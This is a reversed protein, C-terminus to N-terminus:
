ARAEREAVGQGEAEIADMEVFVKELREPEIRGQHLRVCRQALRLGARRHSVILVTRGEVLRALAEQLRLETGMDLSSTAEDLLVVPADKLLARAIAVRQREGASLPLGGESLRTRVGDPLDQVLDGLQASRLAALVEADSAGVRACRVNEELTGAFLITEQAVVALQRRLDELRLERVDVGDLLIEGEDPEVFGLLLSLLTTKGAGSAGVVAVREGPELGLTVGGLIERGDRRLRVGRM